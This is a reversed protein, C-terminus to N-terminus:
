QMCPLQSSIHEPIPSHQAHAAQGLRLAQGAQPQAPQHCGGLHHLGGPAPVLVGGNGGAREGHVQGFNRQLHAVEALEKGDQQGHTRWPQWAVPEAGRTVPTICLSVCCRTNLQRGRPQTNVAMLSNSTTSTWSLTDQDINCTAHTMSVAGLVDICQDILHISQLWLMAASAFCDRQQM